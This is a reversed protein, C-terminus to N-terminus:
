GQAGINPLFNTWYPALIKWIGHVLREGIDGLCWFDRFRYLLTSYHALIVLAEPTRKELLTIFRPSLLNSWAMLAHAGWAEPGEIRRIVFGLAQKAGECAELSEQNLDSTQLMESIITYSPTRIWQLDPEQTAACFLQNLRSDRLSTWLREGMIRAGRHLRFYQVMNDFITDFEQDANAVREALYYLALLSPFLFQPLANSNTADELSMKFGLLGRQHLREANQKYWDSSEPNLFRLHMASLALLQNMLYPTTLATSLYTEAIPKMQDTVMLWEDMNKEVHHLLALHHFTFIQDEKPAPSNTSAPSHPGQSTPTTAELWASGTLEQDYQPTSSKTGKPASYGCKRESIECNGCSPQREDCKIHRRKCVSCGNRSKRHHRRQQALDPM